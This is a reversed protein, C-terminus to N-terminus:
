PGTGSDEDDAGGTLLDFDILDAGSGAGDGRTSLGQVAHVDGTYQGVVESLQRIHQAKVPEGRFPEGIEFSGTREDWFRKAILLAERNLTPDESALLEKVKMPGCNIYQFAEDNFEYLAPNDAPPADEVFEGEISDVDSDPFLSRLVENRHTM